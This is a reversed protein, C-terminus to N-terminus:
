INKFWDWYINVSKIEESDNLCDGWWNYNWVGRGKMFIVKVKFFKLDLFSELIIM